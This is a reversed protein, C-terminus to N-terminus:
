FLNFLLFKAVEYETTEMWTLAILCLVKLQRVQEREWGNLSDVLKEPEMYLSELQFCCYKADRFM